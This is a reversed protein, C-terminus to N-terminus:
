ETVVPRPGLVLQLQRILERGDYPKMLLPVGEPLERRVTESYGSTMLVKLDPRLRRAQRMLQIGNMGGPMVIDSFLVDIQADSELLELASRADAAALTVYGVEELCELALERLNPEDEVVLVVEGEAVIRLIAAATAHNSQPREEACCPLVLTVSTGRGPDSSIRVSGGAQRAFGYVQSLGLGTGKGVEKTTFFPEFARAATIQDMGTGTDTVVVRIYRGPRLELDNGAPLALNRTQITVQGGNPMADRANGVLNLMAAEFQGPDLRVPGLGPELDLVIETAESAARDLLPKFDRLRRNLDVVEPNVMQKGSFALLKQTIDAGRRAALSINASLQRIGPDGARRGIMEANGLIVTLLNNFDHAVGGTMQGVAELRQARMLVAEALRRRGMEEQARALAKEERHARNLAVRTILFLAITGPVGLALNGLMDEYWEGLLANWSQGVVVYVPYGEVKRYAYLRVPVSGGMVARALYTGSRSSSQVASLFNRSIPIENPPAPLAPYRALMQGDERVLAMVRGATETEGALARYFEQFFGPSVAVDIVGELTGDAARWPEALGFFQQRLLLGVQVRTIFPSAGAHMVAQFYDSDSVNVRPVPYLSASVLPWGDKDALLVSQVQPMHAIIRGLEDHLRAESAKISAADMGRVLDNIREILQNQGDFAKAAHERAVDSLRELDRQGDSVVNRYDFWALLAFLVIPVVISAALLIRLL